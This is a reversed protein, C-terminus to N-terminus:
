LHQTLQILKKTQEEVLVGLQDREAQVFRKLDAQQQELAFNPRLFLFLALPRM